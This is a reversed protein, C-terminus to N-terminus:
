QAAKVRPRFLHDIKGYKRAACLALTHGEIPEKCAKCRSNGMAVELRMMIENSEQVCERYDFEVEMLRIFELVKERPENRLDYDTSM